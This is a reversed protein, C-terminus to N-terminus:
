TNYAAESHEAQDLGLVENDRTLRLGMTANIVKLLIWSVVFAYIGVVAIGFLQTGLFGPNGALLGDAGAPNVAKSAFLGSLPHRDHRGPRPHRRRGPM